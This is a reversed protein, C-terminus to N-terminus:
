DMNEYFRSVSVAFNPQPSTPQILGSYLTEGSQADVIYLLQGEAVQALVYLKDNLTQLDFLARQVVEYTAELTIPELWQQQGINYRNIVVKGDIVTAAIMQHDLVLMRHEDGLIQQPIEIETIDNTVLNLIKFQQSRQKYEETRADHTNINYVLYKEPGLHYYEYYFGVYMRYAETGQMVEIIADDILQKNKIDITLLHMEGDGMSKMHNTVLKLENGVVQVHELTIWQASSNLKSNVTFVTVREDNKNLIEIEYPLDAGDALKWPNIPEQVYVLQTDDEYYHNAELLKGRMFSKYNQMLSEYVRPIPREYVSYRQLKTEGNIILVPNYDATSEISGEIILNKIYQEDGTLTEFTVTNKNAASAVQVYHIGLTAVIVGVVVLLPWYKKM